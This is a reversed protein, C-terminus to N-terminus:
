YFINGSLAIALFMGYMVPEVRFSKLFSWLKSTCTIKELDIIEGNIAELTGTNATGNKEAGNKSDVSKIIEM